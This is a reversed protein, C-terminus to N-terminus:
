VIGLCPLKFANLSCIIECTNLATASFYGATALSMIRADPIGTTPPPAPGPLMVEPVVVLFTDAAFDAVDALDTNCSSSSKSHCVIMKNSCM